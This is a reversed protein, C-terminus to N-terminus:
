VIFLGAIFPQTWYMIVDLWQPLDHGYVFAIDFYIHYLIMAIYDIGRIEDLLGIRKGM